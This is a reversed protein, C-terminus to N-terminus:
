KPLPFCTGVRLSGKLLFNEMERKKGQNRTALLLTTM